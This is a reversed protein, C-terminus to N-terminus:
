HWFRSRRRYLNLRLFSIYVDACSYSNRTVLGSSILALARGFRTSLTWLSSSSLPSSSCFLLFQRPRKWVRRSAFAGASVCSVCCLIIVRQMWLRRRSTERGACTCFWREWKGMERKPRGGGENERCPPFFFRIRARARSCARAFCFRFIDNWM